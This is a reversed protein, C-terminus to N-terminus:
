TERDREWEEGVHHRVKETVTKTVNKKLTRKVLVKSVTIKVTIAGVKIYFWHYKSEPTM